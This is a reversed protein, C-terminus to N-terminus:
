QGSHEIGTIEFEFWTFDGDELKWTVSGRSPATLGGFTRHESITIKWPRLTYSGNEERYRDATFSAPMGNETFTFIGEGDVDRYTMSARAQRPGIQEWRIYDQLAAQPFWVMEGLFRQLTGQDIERGRAKVVPILSMLKILMHGCGQAYTDRGTIFLLPGMQIRARWTFGPPSTTFEQVARVPMWKQEPKLRMRASQVVRVQPTKPKGVAGAAQLWTRVPLPLNQLDSEKVNSM